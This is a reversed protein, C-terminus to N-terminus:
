KAAPKDGVHFNALFPTEPLAMHIRVAMEIM